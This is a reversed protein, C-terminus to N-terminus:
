VNEVREIIYAFDGSRMHNINWECGRGADYFGMMSHPYMTNEKVAIAFLVEFTVGHALSWKVIM